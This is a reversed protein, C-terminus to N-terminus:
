FNLRLSGGLIFRDEDDRLEQTSAFIEAQFNDLIPFRVGAGLEAGSTDGDGTSVHDYEFAATVYPEFHDFAYAVEAAARIQGLNIDDLRIANGVSDNYNGNDEKAYSYGLEGTFIWPGAFHNGILTTNFLYRDSHFDGRVEGATAISETVDNTAGTYGVQALVTFIDNIIYAAYATISLADIEREGRATNLELDTNEYGLVAGAVFSSSAIYDIGVLTTLIDGDFKAGPRDNDLHAFSQDVWIGLNQLFDDMGEGGGDDQQYGGLRSYAPQVFSSSQEEDDVKRVQSTVRLVRMLSRVRSIVAGTLNVVATRVQTEGTESINRQQVDVTDSSIPTVGPIPVIIGLGPVVITGDRAQFVLRGNVQGTVQNVLGTQQNDDLFSGPVGSGPQEFSAGQGNAFGARASSGGFGGIGGSVDGTEWQIQDYNFEIDFNGAGTDSRDILIVQFQNTLDTNANFYGVNSYVVGFATNGNVSDIGFTVGGIGRTDVDAFFPAIIQRQTTNLDFPTFEALPQDFTLNGNNNVFATSTQLGFFNASFGIPVATTSGDDNAPLSNSFFGQLPRTAQAAAPDAAAALIAAACCGSVLIGRLSRRLIRM